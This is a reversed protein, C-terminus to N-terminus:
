RATELKRSFDAIEPGLMQSLVKSRDNSKLAAQLFGIIESSGAGEDFLIVAWFLKIEPHAIQDFHAAGYTRYEERDCLGRSLALFPYLDCEAIDQETLAFLARIHPAAKQIGEDTLFEGKHPLTALLECFAKREAASVEISERPGRSPGLLTVCLATLVILSAVVWPWIRTRRDSMGRETSVM